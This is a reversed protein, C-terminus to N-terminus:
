VYYFHLVRNKKLAEDLCAVKEAYFYDVDKQAEPNKCSRNFDQEREMQWYLRLRRVVGKWGGDPKGKENESLVLFTAWTPLQEPLEFEQCQLNMSM